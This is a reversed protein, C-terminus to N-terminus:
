RERRRRFANPDVSVTITPRADHREVSFGYHRRHQDFDHVSYPEGGPDTITFTQTLASRNCFNGRFVLDESRLRSARIANLNGVPLVTVGSDSISYMTNHDSTLM